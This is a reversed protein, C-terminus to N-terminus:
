AFRDPDLVCAMAWDIGCAAVSLHDEEHYVKLRIKEFRESKKLVNFMDTANTGLAMQHAFDLQKEYEKEDWKALRRPDQEYSGYALFLTPRTVSDNADRDKNLFGDQEFLIVKNNWWISPSIAVFTSFTTISSSFLAHLTCLGGYSHGVLVEQSVKVRPFM